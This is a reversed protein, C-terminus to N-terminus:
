DTYNCLYAPLEEISYTKVEGTHLNVEVLGEVVRGARLFRYDGYTAVHYLNDTAPDWQISWSWFAKNYLAERAKYFTGRFTCSNPYCKITKEVFTTEGTQSIKIYGPIDGDGTLTHIWNGNRFIRPELRYGSIPFLTSPSIVDSVKESEIEVRSEINMNEPHYGYYIGSPIAIGVISVAFYIIFLLMSVRAVVDNLSIIHYMLHIVAVFVLGFEICSILTTDTCISILLLVSLLTVGTDIVFMWFLNKAKILSDSSYYNPNYSYPDEKKMVDHKLWKWFWPTALPSGLLWVLVAFLWLKM